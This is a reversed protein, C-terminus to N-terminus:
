RLGSSALSEPTLSREPRRAALKRYFGGDMIGVLNVAAYQAKPLDYSVFFSASLWTGSTYDPLSYGEQVRALKGSSDYVEAAVVTWSDEDIYFTRKPAVHRKGPKLTAEVVWVRRLEYRNAEPLVYQKGLIAARNKGFLINYNNSPVYKERKGILKFDYRDMKGAFLGIEDYNMAGGMQASPTDYSFEPALRVRRQGPTYAWTRQDMSDNQLPFFVMSVNGADRAPGISLNVFRQLYQGSGEYPKVDTEWYPFEIYAQSQNLVTEGSASVLRSEARYEGTARWRVIHNWMAEYGTKPIPFPVGGWCGRLGTGDPTTKCEPNGANKITNQQLAKGMEPFSRQGPYIDMRFGPYRKILEIEGVTLKDAYKEANKADISFLPKESAFPNPLKGDAPVQVGAPAQKLGGTYPPITGDKNGAKEAGWATLTTGLQKIEEPTAGACASGATLAMMAGAFLQHTLKM